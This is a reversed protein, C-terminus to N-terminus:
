AASICGHWGAATWAAQFCAAIQTQARRPMPTRHLLFRADDQGIGQGRRLGVGIAGIPQLPNELVPRFLRDRPAKNQSLWVRDELVVPLLDQLPTNRYREPMAQPGYLFGVGGGFEVFRVLMELWSRVGEETPAIREPALDGILVVHYQLLEKETRPIDKLPPLEDSHEQVFKPSADFLVAQM